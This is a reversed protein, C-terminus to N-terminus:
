YIYCNFFIMSTLSLFYSKPSGPAAAAVEELVEGVVPFAGVARLGVAEPLGAEAEM